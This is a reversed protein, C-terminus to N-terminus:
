QNRRNPILQNFAVDRWELAIFAGVFILNIFVILGLFEAVLYFAGKPISILGLASVNLGLLLVLVMATLLIAGFHKWSREYFLSIVISAVLTFLLTMPMAQGILQDPPGDLAMLAAFSMAPEFVLVSAVGLFMLMMVYLLNYGLWRGISHQDVLLSYSWGICVGCLAGAFLM